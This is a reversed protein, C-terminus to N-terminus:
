PGVNEVAMGREEEWSDSVLRINGDESWLSDWTRVMHGM